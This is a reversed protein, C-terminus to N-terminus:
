DHEDEKSIQVIGTTNYPAYSNRYTRTKSFGFGITLSRIKKGEIDRM